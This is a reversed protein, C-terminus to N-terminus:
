TLEFDKAPFAISCVEPHGHCCDNVLFGILTRAEPIDAAYILKRGQRTVSILGANSLITLHSSLTNQPVGLAEAIKGAAMGSDGESMLLRFVKFRTIQSLANLMEVAQEDTM